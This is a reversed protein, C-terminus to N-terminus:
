YSYCVTITENSSIYFNLTLELGTIGYDNELEEARIGNRFINESEEIPEYPLIAINGNILDSSKFHLRKYRPKFKSYDQSQMAM